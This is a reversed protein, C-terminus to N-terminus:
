NTIALEDLAKKEAQDEPSMFLVNVPYVRVDVGYKDLVSRLESAVAEASEVTTADISGLVDVNFAPREYLPWVRGHAATTGVQQAPNTNM